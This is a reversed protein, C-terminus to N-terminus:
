YTCTAACCCSAAAVSGSGNRCPQRWWRGPCARGPGFLVVPVPPPSYTEQPAASGFGEPPPLLRALRALRLTAQPTPIRRGAEINGIQQESVSLYRGLEAQTLGFHVRIAMSLSTSPVSNSLARAM